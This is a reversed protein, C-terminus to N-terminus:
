KMVNHVGTTTFAIIPPSNRYKASTQKSVSMIHLDDHRNPYM